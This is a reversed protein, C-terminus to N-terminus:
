GAREAVELQQGPPGKSREAAQKADEVLGRVRELLAARAAEDPLQERWSELARRFRRAQARLERTRDTLAVGALSRDADHLM